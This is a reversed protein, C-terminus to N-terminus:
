QQFLVALKAAERDADQRELKRHGGWEPTWSPALLVVLPQPTENPALGPEIPVILEPIGTIFTSIIPRRLVPPSHPNRQMSPGLKV